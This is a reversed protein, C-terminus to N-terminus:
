SKTAVVRALVDDLSAFRFSQKSLLMADFSLGGISSAQREPVQQRTERWVVTQPQSGSEVTAYSWQQFFAEIFYVLKYVDGMWARDTLGLEKRVKATRGFDRLSAHFSDPMVDDILIVGGANLREISSTFDKLTQEFTHLGDLFILDFKEVLNPNGFYEDSPVEHFSCHTHEKAAGQWDFMFTPDVAVKRGAKAALFTVGTQVGVELYSPNPGLEALIANVVDVRAM